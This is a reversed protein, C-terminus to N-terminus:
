GFYYILESVLDQDEPRIRGGAERIEHLVGRVPIAALKSNAIVELLRRRLSACEVYSNVLGSLAVKAEDGTM